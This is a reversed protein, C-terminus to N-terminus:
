GGYHPAETTERQQQKLLKRRSFDLALQPSASVFDVGLAGLRGSNLLAAHGGCIISAKTKKRIAGICRALAEARSESSWSICVVDFAQSTARKLWEDPAEPMIMATTWGSARFLEEVFFM